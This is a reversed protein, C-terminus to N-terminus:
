QCCGPFACINGCRSTNVPCTPEAVRAGACWYPGGEATITLQSYQGAGPNCDFGIEEHFYKGPLGSAYSILAPWGKEDSGSITGVMTMPKPIEGTWQSKGLCAYAANLHTQFGGQCCYVVEADNVISPLTSWSGPITAQRRFDTLPVWSSLGQAASGESYDGHVDICAQHTECQGQASLVYGGPCQPVSGAGCAACSGDKTVTGAPCRCEDDECVQGTPCALSAWRGSDSCMYQRGDNGCFRAGPSYCPGAGRPDATPPLSGPPEPTESCSENASDGPESPPDEDGDPAAISYKLVCPKVPTPKADKPGCIAEFQLNRFARGACWMQRADTIWLRTGNPALMSARTPAFTTGQIHTGLSPESGTYGFAIPDYVVDWRRRTITDDAAHSWESTCHTNVAISGPGACMQGRRLFSGDPQRLVSAACCSDHVESGVATACVLTGDGQARCSPGYSLINTPIIPRQECQAGIAGYCLDPLGCSAGNLFVDLRGRLTRAINSGNRVVATYSGKELVTWQLARAAPGQAVETLTFDPAPGVKAIILTASALESSSSAAVLRTQPKVPYTMPLKLLGGSPVTEVKTRSWSRAACPPQIRPLIYTAVPAVGATSARLTQRDVIEDAALAYQLEFQQRHYKSFAVLGLVANVDILAGPDLCFVMLYDSDVMTETVAANGSAFMTAPDSTMSILNTYASVMHYTVHEQACKALRNLRVSPTEVAPNLPRPECQLRRLNVENILVEFDKKQEDAPPGDPYLLGAMSREGGSLQRGLFDTVRYVVRKGVPCTKRSQNMAIRSVRARLQESSVPPPISVNSDGVCRWTGSKSLADAGVAVASRGSCFETAREFPVVTGAQELGQQTLEVIPESHEGCACMAVAIALLSQQRRM